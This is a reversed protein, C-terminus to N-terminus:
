KNPQRVPRRSNGVRRRCSSDRLQGIDALRFLASATSPDADAGDADIGNAAASQFRIVVDCM